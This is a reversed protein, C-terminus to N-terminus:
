MRIEKYKSLIYFIDYKIIYQAYNIIKACNQEYRKCYSPAVFIERIRTVFM